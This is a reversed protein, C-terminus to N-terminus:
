FAPCPCFYEKLRAKNENVEFEISVGYTKGRSGLVESSIEVSREGTKSISLDIFEENKFIQKGKSYTSDLASKRKILQEDIVEM